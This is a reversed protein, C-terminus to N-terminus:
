QGPGPVQRIIFTGLVKRRDNNKAGALTFFKALEDFPTDHNLYWCQGDAFGVWFGDPYVGSPDNGTGRGIAHDMTRIDLDGGPEM